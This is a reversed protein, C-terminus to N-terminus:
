GAMVGNVAISWITAARSDPLIVGLVEDPDRDTFRLFAAVKEQTPPVIPLGDSFEHAYFYRNVEDFGGTCVIDRAGPESTETATAPASTLNEIVRGVTVGLINRRLEDSSQAGTHGPVFAVPLTPMGLGISTAAAQGIFGECVLSATPVGAKECVASARLM